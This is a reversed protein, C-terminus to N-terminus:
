GKALCNSLVRWQVRASSQKKTKNNNKKESSALIRRIFFDQTKIKFFSFIDCIKISDSRILQYCFKTDDFETQSWVRWSPSGGPTIKNESYFIKHKLKLFALFVTSEPYSSGESVRVLISKGQIEAM